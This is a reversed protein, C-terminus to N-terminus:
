WALNGGDPQRRLGLTLVDLQNAADAASGQAQGVSLWDGACECLERNQREPGADRGAKEDPLM